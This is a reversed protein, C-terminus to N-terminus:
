AGGYLHARVESVVHEILDRARKITTGYNSPSVLGGEGRISLLDDVGKETPCVYRGRWYIYQSLAVATAIQKKSLKVKAEAALDVLNHRYFTDWVKRAARASPKPASVLGRVKPDDV